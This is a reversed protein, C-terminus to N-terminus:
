TCCSGATRARKELRLNAAEIDVPSSRAFRRGSPDLFDVRVAQHASQPRGPEIRLGRDISLTRWVVGILHHAKEAFDESVAVRRRNRDAQRRGSNSIKTLSSHGLAPDSPSVITARDASVPSSTPASTASSADAPGASLISRTLAFNSGIKQYEPPTSRRTGRLAGASGPSYRCRKRSPTAVLRAPNPIARCSMAVQRARPCSCPTDTATVSAVLVVDCCTKRFCPAEM